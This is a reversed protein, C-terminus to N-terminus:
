MAHVIPSEKAAPPKNKFVLYCLVPLVTIATIAAIVLVLNMMIALPKFLRGEVHQFSLIPLFTMAIIATSFIVPKAVESAAQCISEQVERASTHPVSGLRRNINEIIIVAGDVIIGFDIAGLSLLNAPFNAFRM